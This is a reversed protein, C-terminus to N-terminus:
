FFFFFLQNSTQLPVGMLVFRPVDNGCSKSVLVLGSVIAKAANVRREQLNQKCSHLYFRSLRRAPAHVKNTSSGHEAVISYLGAEIAATERLEEELMEIRSREESKSVGSLESKVGKDKDRNPSAPPIGNGSIGGSKPIQVSKLHKLKNSGQGQVQGQGGPQKRSSVLTNSRLKDQKRSALFKGVLNDESFQKKEEGQGSEPESMDEKTAESNGSQEHLSAVKSVSNTIVPPPNGEKDEQVGHSGNKPELIRMRTKPEGTKNQSGMTSFSSQLFPSAPEKRVSTMSREPHKSTSEMGLPLVPHKGNGQKTGEMSDQM